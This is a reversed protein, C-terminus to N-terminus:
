PAKAATVAVTAHQLSMCSKTLFLSYGPQIWSGIGGLTCCSKNPLPAKLVPSGELVTGREKGSM